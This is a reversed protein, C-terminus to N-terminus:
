PARGEGQLGASVVLASLPYGYLNTGFTTDWFALRRGFQALCRAMFPTQLSIRLPQRGEVYPEYRLVWGQEKYQAMQLAVAKADSTLGYGASRRLRKFLARVQEPVISWRANSVDALTGGELQAAYKRNITLCAAYPKVGADLLLSLQEEVEPAMNLLALDDACGPDHFQHAETVWVSVTSAGPRHRFELAFPCGTKRARACAYKITWQGTAKHRLGKRVDATPMSASAGAPVPHRHSIPPCAVPQLCCLEPWFARQTASHVRGCAGAVYRLGDVQVDTLDDMACQGALVTFWLHANPARLMLDTPKDPDASFTHVFDSIATLPLAEKLCEPEFPTLTVGAAPEETTHLRNGAFSEHREVGDLKVTWTEGCQALPSVPCRLAPMPMVHPPTAKAAMGCGVGAWGQM